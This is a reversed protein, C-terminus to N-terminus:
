FLGGSKVFDLFEVVVWFFFVKVLPKGKVVTKYLVQYVALLVVKLSRVIKHEQRLIRRLCLKFFVQVLVHGYFRKLNSTNLCQNQTTSMLFCNKKRRIKLKWNLQWNWTSHLFYCVRKLWVSYSRTKLEKISVTTYKRKYLAKLTWTFPMKLTCCRIWVHLSCFAM